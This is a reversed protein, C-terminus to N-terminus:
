NRAASARRSCIQRIVRAAWRHWPEMGLQEISYCAASFGPDGMWLWNGIRWRELRRWRM